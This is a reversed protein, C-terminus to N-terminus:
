LIFFKNVMIKFVTYTVALFIFVPLSMIGLITLIFTFIAILSQLYVFIRDLSGFVPGAMGHQGASSTVKAQMKKFWNLKKDVDKSDTPLDVEPGDAGGKQVMKINYKKCYKDWSSGLSMLDTIQMTILLVIIWYLYIKYEKYFKKFKEWDQKMLEFLENSFDILEDIFSNM